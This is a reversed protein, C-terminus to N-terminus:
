APWQLVLVGLSVHSLHLLSFSTLTHLTLVPTMIHFINLHIRCIFAGQPLESSSCWQLYLQHLLNTKKVGIKWFHSCRSPSLHSCFAHLKSIKGLPFIQLFHLKLIYCFQNLILGAWLVDPASPSSSVALSSFQFQLSSEAVEAVKWNTVPFKLKGASFHRPSYIFM